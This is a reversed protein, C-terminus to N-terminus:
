IRNFMKSLLLCDHTYFNELRRQLSEFSPRDEPNAKWCDLMVEYLGEPTNPPEPMRYGREVKSLVEANSMGPYPIRGCTICETIVIGFSWVDSKISFKNMMAAEPATWKIPFKAGEKATYEDESTDLLRSLGFDAVKCDNNEGVLVNRAALDRHIFMQAELYAMGAAIQACMEVLTRVELKRLGQEKLYDLLSGNKMLETVIYFPMMDTCVALLQILKPHRMKKMVTAEKLFEEPSMSGAKLTKVAVDQQNNWRGMWVEGFQGQGLKKSLQITDRSIEWRDKTERSLDSTMPAAVKEVIPKKLMCVLGGLNKKYHEVLETMDNFTIKTNIFFGKNGDLARIRYHKVGKEMNADPNNYVVSLSYEGPKSESERILFSGVAGKMLMKEADKRAIKGKFWPEDISVSTEKFEQVYNSPIWGEKLNTLHRVLWWHGDASNLVVFKDSKVFSLDEPTRAEYPYIAQCIKEDSAASSPSPIPPLPAFPTSTQQNSQSQRGGSQDVMTEVANNQYSQVGKPAGKKPTQSQENGM